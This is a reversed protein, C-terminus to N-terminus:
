MLITFPELTWMLDGTFNGTWDADENSMGLKMKYVYPHKEAEDEFYYTIICIIYGYFAISNFLFYLFEFNGELESRLAVDELRQVAVEVACTLPDKTDELELPLDDLNPRGGKKEKLLLLDVTDQITKLEKALMAEGQKRDALASSTKNWFPTWGGHVLWAYTEADFINQGDVNALRGRSRKLTKSLLSLKKSQRRKNWGDILMYRLSMLLAIEAVTLAHILGPLGGIWDTETVHFSNAFLWIFSTGIMLLLIGEFIARQSQKYDGALKESVIKGAVTPRKEEHIDQLLSLTPLKSMGSTISRIGSLSLSVAAYMQTMGIMAELPTTQNLPAPLEYYLATYSADYLVSKPFLNLDQVCCLGNRILGVIANM